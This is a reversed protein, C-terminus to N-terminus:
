YLRPLFEKSDRKYLRPLMKKMFSSKKYLRPTVARVLRLAEFGDGRKYLRPISRKRYLRPISSSRSPRLWQIGDDTEIIEGDDESRKYLRPMQDRRNIGYSRLVEDDGMRKYVRPIGHRGDKKYLRPIEGNERKRYLRPMEDRGKRKYLRPIIDKKMLYSSGGFSLAPANQDSNGDGVLFEDYIDKVDEQNEPVEPFRHTRQELSVGGEGYPYQHLAHKITNLDDASLSLTELDSSSKSAEVECTTVTSIFVFAFCINLLQNTKTSRTMSHESKTNRTM